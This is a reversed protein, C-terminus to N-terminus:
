DGALLAAFPDAGPELEVLNAAGALDGITVSGLALKHTTAIRAGTGLEVWSEWSARTGGKPLNSTWMKWSVPLDDAGLLWLYADGPTLGGTTYQVLLAESGDDLRVLGRETGPDFIKVVPNLWFSDNTWRAFAKDVLAAARAGQIRRGNESAIGERGALDVLVEVKGWRVRALGRDRDWLHDRDGRFSWRVAGTAQWAPENVAALMRSALAEAEPGPTGAPRREAAAAAALALAALALAALALLLGGRRSGSLSAARVRAASRPTIKM